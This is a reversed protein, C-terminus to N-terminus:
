QSEQKKKLGRAGSELKPRAIRPSQCKTLKCESFTQQSAVRNSIRNIHSVHGVLKSSDFLSNHLEPSTVCCLQWGSAFICSSVLRAALKSNKQLKGADNVIKRHRCPLSGVGFALSDQPHLMMGSCKISSKSISSNESTRHHHHM